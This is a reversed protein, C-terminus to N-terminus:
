RFDSIDNHQFHYQLQLDEGVRQSRHRFRGGRGHNGGLFWLWQKGFRIGSSFDEANQLYHAHQFKRRSVDEGYVEKSYADVKTKGNNFNIIAGSGDPVFMYGEDEMSGAGFYELLSVTILQNDGETIENVLVSAALGDEELVYTVPITIGLQSFNFDVRVGDTIKQSSFTEKAVSGAYSNMESIQTKNRNTYTIGLQSKLNTNAIGSALPDDEILPNSYWMTNTRKDQVAVYCNQSNFYLVFNDNSAM